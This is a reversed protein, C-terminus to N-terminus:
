AARVGQRVTYGKGRNEGNCVLRLRKAESRSVVEATNDASGDDVVILEFSLPSKRMFADIEKISDGIRAAENFAPVVISIMPKGQDEIAVFGRGASTESTEM